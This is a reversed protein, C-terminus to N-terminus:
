VQAAADQGPTLPIRRVFFKEGPLLVVSQPRASVATPLPATSTM